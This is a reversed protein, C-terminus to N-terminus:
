TIDNIYCRIPEPQEDTTYRYMIYPKQQKTKVADVHELFYSDDMTLETTRLVFLLTEVASKSKKRPCIFETVEYKEEEYIVNAVATVNGQDYLVYIAGDLAELERQVMEYYSISHELYLDFKEKELTDTAFRAVAEKERLTLEGWCKADFIGEGEGTFTTTERWYTGVFGLPEYIKENAPSLFVLPVDQERCDKIGQQLIKTMRKQHRFNEETAVGVIYPTKVRQGKYFAPYFTFFAMSCLAEGEYDVYCKSIPAKESFYFDVYKETDEFVRSWLDKQQKM